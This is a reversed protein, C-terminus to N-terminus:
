AQGWRTLLAQPDPRPREELPATTTGIYVLGSVRESGKLGMATITEADYAVWDTQWQADLGM